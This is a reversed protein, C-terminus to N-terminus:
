CAAVPSCPKRRAPNWTRMASSPPNALLHALVGGDTSPGIHEMFNGFLRPSLPESIATDSFQISASWSTAM